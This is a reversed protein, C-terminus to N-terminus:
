SKALVLCLCIYIALSPQVSRPFHAMFERGKQNNKAGSLRKCTTIMRTGNEWKNRALTEM